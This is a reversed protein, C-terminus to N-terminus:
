INFKSSIFLSRQEMHHQPSKGAPKVHAVATNQRGSIFKKATAKKTLTLIKYLIRCVNDVLCALQLLKHTTDGAHKVTLPKGVRGTLKRDRLRALLKIVNEHYQCIVDIYLQFIIKEKRRFLGFM